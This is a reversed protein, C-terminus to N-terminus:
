NDCRLDIGDEFHCNTEDLLNFKGSDELHYHQWSRASAGGEDFGHELLWINLKKDIYFDLAIQTLDETYDKIFNIVLSNIVKNSKEVFLTIAFQNPADSKEIGEFTDKSKPIYDGNPFSDVTKTLYLNFKNSRFVYVKKNEIVNEFLIKSSPTQSFTSLICRKNYKDWDKETYGFYDDIHCNNNILKVVSKNAIKPTGIPLLDTQKALVLSSITLLWIFTILKKM